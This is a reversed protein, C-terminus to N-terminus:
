NRKNNSSLAESYKSAIWLHPPLPRTEWYNVLSQERRSGAEGQLQLLNPGSTEKREGKREGGRRQKGRGEKEERGRGQKGRGEEERGKGEREAQGRGDGGRGNGRAKLRTGAM